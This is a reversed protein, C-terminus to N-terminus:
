VDGRIKIYVLEIFLLILAFIALHRTLSVDKQKEIISAKYEEQKEAEITRNFNINSEKDSLLNAAYTREGVRYLGVKDMILRNTKFTGEPTTVREQGNLSIIRGTRYNFNSLSETGVLFNVLENWFIPYSPSHKFDTKEDIIGYFIIKGKGLESFVITPFGAISVVSVINPKATTEYYESVTSFEIDKTFQNVIDTVIPNNIEKKEGIKVPMLKGFKDMNDQMTIILSKGREVQRTIDSFTGPLVQEFDINSLVIVDYNKLDPVIPLEAIDLKVDISSEFAYRLYNNISSTILLIRVRTKNPASIFAVNDVEFDDPNTIRIETIGGPTEFDFTEVSNKNISLTQRKILTNKSSVDVTVIAQEEQYNKVYVKTNHKEVIMDVVGVNDAKDGVDVFDVHLNRSELLKKIVVPDPGGTYIFDSIILVRGEKGELIDAAVLMANGLDTRTDRPRITSLIGSAKRIDGNELATIPLDGALIISTRGKLSRKAVDIAKNFRADNNAQMSASVDLVVVTSQGASDYNVTIFPYTIAFSLGLLTLLQLLFILNRLLTEILTRQRGKSQQKMFFMLSPITIDKAKPRRLYLLILVLISIFAWFGIINTFQM